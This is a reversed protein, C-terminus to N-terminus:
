CPPPSTAPSFPWAASRGRSWRPSCRSRGDPSRAGPRLAHPRDADGGSFQAVRSSANRLPRARSSRSRLAARPGVDRGGPSHPRTVGHARALHRTLGEFLTETELGEADRLAEAEAELEPFYNQHLQMFDSVQESSLRVMDLGALEEDGLVRETISAAIGRANDYAQHLRVVARAVDPYSEVFGRVEGTTM